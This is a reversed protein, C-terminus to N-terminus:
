TRNTFVPPYIVVDGPRWWYSTAESSQHHQAKSKRGIDGGETKEESATPGKERMWRSSSMWKERSGDRYLGRDLEKTEDKMELKESLMTIMMSMMRIRYVVKGRDRLV